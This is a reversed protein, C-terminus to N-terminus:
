MSKMVKEWRKILSSLKEGDKNETNVAGARSCDKYVSLMLKPDKDRYVRYASLCDDNHIGPSIECKSLPPEFSAEFQRMSYLFIKCTDTSADKSAQDFSVGQETSTSVPTITPTTTTYTACGSLAFIMTLSGRIVITKM